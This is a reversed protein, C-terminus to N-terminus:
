IFITLPYKQRVLNFRRCLIKTCTHLFSWSLVKEHVFYQWWLVCVGNPLSFAVRIDQLHPFLWKLLRHFVKCEMQRTGTGQGPLSLLHRGTILSLSHSGAAKRSVNTKESNIKRANSARLLGKSGAFPIEQASAFFRWLLGRRPLLAAVCRRGEYVQWKQNLILQETM